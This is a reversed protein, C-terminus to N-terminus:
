KKQVVRFVTKNGVLWPHQVIPATSAYHTVKGFGSLNKEIEEVTFMVDYDRVFSPAKINEHIILVGGPKLADWSRQLTTNLEVRPVYLLSGIYSIVDYKKPFVFKESPSIHFSFRLGVEEPYYDCLRRAFIQYLSNIDCVEACQITPDSLLLEASVLGAGGGMDLLELGRRGQFINELIFELASAKYNVGAIFYNFVGLFTEWKKLDDPSFGIKLFSTEDLLDAASAKLLKESFEPSLDPRQFKQEALFINRYEEFFWTLVSSYAKVAGHHKQFVAENEKRRVTQPKGLVSELWALNWSRRKVSEKDGQFPIFLKGGARLSNMAKVLFAAGWQNRFWTMDGSLYVNECSGAPTPLLYSFAPNGLRSVTGAPSSFKVTSGAKIGNKELEALRAESEAQSKGRLYVLDM